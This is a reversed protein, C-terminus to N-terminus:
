LICARVHADVCVCVHSLICVNVQMCSRFDMGARARAHMSMQVSMLVLIHIPMHTSSQAYAHTNVHGHAVASKHADTCSCIRVCARACTHLRVGFGISASSTPEATGPRIGALRCGKGGKYVSFVTKNLM